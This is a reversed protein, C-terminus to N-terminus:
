RNNFEVTVMRKEYTVLAGVIDAVISIYDRCLALKPNGKIQICGTIIGICLTFIVDRQLM